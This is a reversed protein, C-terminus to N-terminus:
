DAQGRSQGLGGDGNELQVLPRGHGLSAVVPSGCGTRPEVMRAGRALGPHGVRAGRALVPHSLVPVRTLVLLIFLPRLVAFLRLLVSGAYLLSPNYVVPLISSQGLVRRRTGLLRCM